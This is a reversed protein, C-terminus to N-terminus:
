LVVSMRLAAGHMLMLGLMMVDNSAFAAIAGCSPTSPDVNRPENLAASRFRAASRM